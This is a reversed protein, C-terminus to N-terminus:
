DPTSSYPTFVVKTELEWTAQVLAPPRPSGVHKVWHIAPRPASAACSRANPPGGPQPSSEPALSRPFRARSAHAPLTRQNHTHNLAMALPAM